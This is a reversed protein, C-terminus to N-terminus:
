EATQGLGVSWSLTWEKRWLAVLGVQRAAWAVPDRLKEDVNNRDQRAAEDATLVVCVAAVRLLVAAEDRRMDFRHGHAMANRWRAVPNRLCCVWDPDFGHEALKTVYTELSPFRGVHADGQVRYLPEGLTLLLGRAGAEILPFTRSCCEVYREQWYAELVDVFVKVLSPDCRYKVVLFGALEQASFDGFEARIADLEHALVEGMLSATMCELREREEVEAEERSTTTKIPMGSKDYTTSTVGELLSGAVINKATEMNKECSGTPCPTTLWIGIASRINQAQRYRALRQDIVYRPIICDFTFVQMDEERVPHAQLAQVARDRLDAYHYRRAESAAKEYWYSARIGSEVDGAAIYGEILTRRAEDRDSAFEANRVLLKAIVEDVGDPDAIPTRLEKLANAVESRSPRAARECKPPVTLFEFLEVLVSVVITRSNLQACVMEYAKERVRSEMEGLDYSRALSSARRLCAARYYSDVRDEDAVREYLSAISKAEDRTRTNSASFAVDLLHVRPLSRKCLAAVEAWTRKERDTVLELRAPWEGDESSFSRGVVLAGNNKPDDVLTYAFAREVYHEVSSRGEPVEKSDPSPPKYMKQLLDWPDVAETALEDLLHAASECEQAAVASMDSPKKNKSM